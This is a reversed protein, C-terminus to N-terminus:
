WLTSDSMSRKCGHSGFNCPGDGNELCATNVRGETRVRAGGVEKDHQYDMVRNVYKAGFGTMAAACM